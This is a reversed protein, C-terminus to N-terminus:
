LLSRHLAPQAANYKDLYLMRLAGRARMTRRPSIPMASWRSLRRACRKRDRKMDNTMASGRGAFIYVQRAALLRFGEQKLAVITSPDATENLSRIVISRDPFRATLDDRMAAVAKRDLLPV